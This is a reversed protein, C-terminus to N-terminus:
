TRTARRFLGFQHLLTLRNERNRDRLSRAAEPLEAREEALAVNSLEIIAVSVGLDCMQEHADFHAVPVFGRFQKASHVLAPNLGVVQRVVRDGLNMDPM